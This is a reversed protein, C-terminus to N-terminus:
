CTSYNFSLTGNIRFAFYPPKIYQRMGETMVTFPAFAQEFEIFSNTITYAPRSRLLNIAQMRLEESFNYNRVPDIKKLNGWFIISVDQQAVQSNDYPDYNPFSVPDAPYFFCFARLHDNPTLIYPERNNYVEPEVIDTVRQQLVQARNLRKIQKVARPFVKELWPLGAALLAQIPQIALDVGQPEPPLEVIPNPYSIM